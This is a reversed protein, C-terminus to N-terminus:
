NLPPPTLGAASGTGDGAEAYLARQNPIHIVRGEMTLVGDEHLARLTRSISEPTTALHSALQLRNLPMSIDLGGDPRQYGYRARLGILLHTLRRRVPQSSLELLSNEILSVERAMRSAFAVALASHRRIAHELTQRDIHCVTCPSLAEATVAHGTGILFGVIGTTNGASTIRVLMQNGEPDTRSEAVSGSAVCYIGDVPAGQLYLNAGADGQFSHKAQDIAAMAGDDIAQWEASRRTPCSACHLCTKRRPPRKM